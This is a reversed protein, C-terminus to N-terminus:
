RLPLSDCSACKMKNNGGKPARRGDGDNPFQVDEEDAANVTPLVQPGVPAVVPAIVTARTVSPRKNVVLVFITFFFSPSPRCFACAAVLCPPLTLPLLASAHRETSLEHPLKASTAATVLEVGFELDLICLSIHNQLFFFHSLCLPDLRPSGV